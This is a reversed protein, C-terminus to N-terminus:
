AAQWVCTAVSNGPITATFSKDGFVVTIKKSEGKDNAAVMAVSGDTNHCVVNSVDNSSFVITAGPKMWKSFHGLAYYGGQYTVTKLMNNVEILGHSKSIGFGPVVPGNNQDLAINWFILSSSYNRLIRVGNKAQEILNSEFSGDGVWVGCSTETFYVAKKPFERKIETQAAENGGYVHWATGSIFKYADSNLLLRPYEPHDWNQDYCLIKTDIGKEEFAPGLSEGIFKAQDEATMTMTPYSNMGLLPENQPTVAFIPIGQAKYAEIYKVFYNAYTGYHEYKLIGNQMSNTTKMWGPASWPTGMVKLSSNISLAQKTLPVVNQMDRAISFKNLETDGPTDDYSYVDRSYDCAGMPNRLFSIGIGNEYSFLKQMVENRKEASLLSNILYASSDTFSAGVGELIQRRQNADIEIIVGSEDLNEADVVNLTSTKFTNDEDTSIYMMVSGNISYDRPTYAPMVVDTPTDPFGTDETNSSNDESSSPLGSLTEESTLVEEKGCSVFVSLLMCCFLLISLKRKM